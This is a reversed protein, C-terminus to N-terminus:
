PERRSEVFAIVDSLLFRLAGRGDGLRFAPLRGESHWGYVTSKGVRLQRAIDQVTVLAPLAEPARADVQAVASRM